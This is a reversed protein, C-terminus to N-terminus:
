FSRKKRLFQKKNAKEALNANGKKAYKKKALRKACKTRERRAIREMVKACKERVTAGHHSKTRENM